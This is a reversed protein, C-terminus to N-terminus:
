LSGSCLRQYSLMEMFNILEVVDLNFYNIPKWNSMIYMYTYAYTHISIMYIHSYMYTYACIHMCIKYIHICVFIAYVNRKGRKQSERM